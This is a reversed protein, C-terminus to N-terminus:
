KCVFPVSINDGLGRMKLFSIRNLKGVSETVGALTGGEKRKRNIKNETYVNLFSHGKNGRLIM